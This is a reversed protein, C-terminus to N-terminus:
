FLFKFILVTESWLRIDHFLSLFLLITPISALWIYYSNKSGHSAFLFPSTTPSFFFLSQSFPSTSSSARWILLAKPLCESCGKVETRVCGVHFSAPSSLLHCLINETIIEGALCSLWSWTHLPFFPTSPALLVSIILFFVYWLLLLQSVLPYPSAFRRMNEYSVKWVATGFRLHVLYDYTEQLTRTLVHQQQKAVYRICVCCCWSCPLCVTYILLPLQRCQLCLRVAATDSLWPMHLCLCAM